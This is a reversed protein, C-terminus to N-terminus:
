LAEDFTVITPEIEGPRRMGTRAWRYEYRTVCRVDDTELDRPRSLELPHRIGLKALQWSLGGVDGKTTFRLWGVRDLAGGEWAAFVFRDDQWEVTLEDGCTSVVLGGANMKRALEGLAYPGRIAGTSYTRESRLKLLAM